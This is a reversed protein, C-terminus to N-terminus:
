LVTRLAFAPRQPRLAFQRAHEAYGLLAGAILWTLPTISANPILDALNV